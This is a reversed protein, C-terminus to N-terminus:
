LLKERDTKIQYEIKGIRITNLGVLPAKVEVRRNDVWTGTSNLDYLWVDDKCNVILCHRRSVNVDGSVQMDNDKYGQRGFKVISRKWQVDNKGIPQGPPSVVLINRTMKRFRYDIFLLKSKLSPGSAGFSSQKESVVSHNYQVFYNDADKLEDSPIIAQGQNQLLRCIYLNNEFCPNGKEVALVTQALEMGAEYRDTEYYCQLLLNYAEFDSPNRHLHDCFLSIATPYDKLGLNIWGLDKQVDLRPNLKLAKEYCQRAEGIKQRMLYCKGLVKVVNVDDPNKNHAHELEVGAKVWKKTALLRQAREVVKGAELVERNLVLPVRKAQIAEVFENMTQFRLEPVKNIAKLIIEQQWHPLQKIPFEGKDHIALIQEAPQRFFPNTGTLLEMLTVGLAYIDVRADLVSKVDWNLAEPSMYSLTGGGTNAIGFDSVKITGHEALLVNDPKIDHHFIGKQHVFGLTEALTQVWQFAQEPKVRKNWIADRLSDGSCYEMVLFLLGDRSFNHYYTVINPHNFRSVAQIERILDKQKDPSSDHLRKIAVLRNAIKDRALFVDGFGGGGLHYEVTYGPAFEEPAKQDNSM